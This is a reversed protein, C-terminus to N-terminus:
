QRSVRCYSHSNGLSCGMPWSPTAVFVVALVWAALRTVYLEFWVPGKGLEPRQEKPRALKLHDDCIAFLWAALLVLYTGLGPIARDFAHATLAAGPYEKFVDASVLTPMAESPVTNSM